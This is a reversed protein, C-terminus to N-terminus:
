ERRSHVLDVADDVVVLTAAFGIAAVPDLEIVRELSHFTLEGRTGCAPLGESSVFIFVMARRRVPRAVLEIANAHAGLASSSLVSLWDIITPPTSAFRCSCAARRSMSRSSPFFVAHEPETIAGRTTSVAPCQM